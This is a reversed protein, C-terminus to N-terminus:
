PAAIAHLRAAAIEQHGRPTPHAGDAALAEVGAEVARQDLVVDLPIAPVDRDRVDVVADRRRSHESM